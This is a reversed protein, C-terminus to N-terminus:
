SRRKRSLCGRDRTHSNAENRHSYRTASVASTDWGYAVLAPTM